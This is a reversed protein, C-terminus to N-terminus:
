DDIRSRLITQAAIGVVLYVIAGAGWAVLAEKMAANSGSFSVIDRAPGVLADCVSSVTDYVGSGTEDLAVLLAGFALVVSCILGLAGILGAIASVIRSGRRTAPAGAKASDDGDTRRKALRERLPVKPERPPEVIHDDKAPRQSAKTPRRPAKAARQSAKASRRLAKAQSRDERPPKDAEDQAQQGALEAAAQRAAENEREFQAARALAHALPAELESHRPAEHRPSEHRPAEDAVVDEAQEEHLPQEVLAPGESLIQADETSPHEDPQVAPGGTPDAVPPEDHEEAPADAGDVLASAGDPGGAERVEPAIEDATASDVREAAKTAAALARARARADAAAQKAAARQRKSALKAERRSARVTRRDVTAEDADSQGSSVEVAPTELVM